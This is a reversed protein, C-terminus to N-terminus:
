DGLQGCWRAIAEVSEIPRRQLVLHPAGAVVETELEPMVRKLAAHVKPSFLRDAGARLYLTPVDITTLSATEDSRLAERARRAMVEPRVSMLARFFDDVEAEPVDHDFMLRRILWRPPRVRFALTPVLWPPLALPRAHFTAVLV